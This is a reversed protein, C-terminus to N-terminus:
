RESKMAEHIARNCPTHFFILAQTNYTVYPQAIVLSYAFFITSALPKNRPQM